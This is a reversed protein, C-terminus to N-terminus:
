FYNRKGARLPGASGGHTKFRLWPGNDSTFIVITNKDLQNKELAEIIQGVSWDIEEIVDVYLSSKSRGRFEKSVFLPIHPMSHALYLFFPKSKNQEIFQIAKQTYRKTITTQDAPREIVNTNEILPVNFFETKSFYAPDEAKELYEDWKDSDMDNSYPIGYYYDFGQNQPLFEPLHGM